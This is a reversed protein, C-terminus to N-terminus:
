ELIELNSLKSRIGDLDPKSIANGRLDLRRLNALNGLENPLGTLQNNSFDLEELKSLQGIESPVGTMKNGSANLIRLNKLQGIQSPLAGTLNNRSLNLETLDTRDFINSPVKDLGSGSLDMKTSLLGSEEANKVISAVNMSSCGAGLLFIGSVAVLVFFVKM